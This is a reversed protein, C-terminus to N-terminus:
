PEFLAALRREVHKHHSHVQVQTLPSNDPQSDPWTRKVFLDFYGNTLKDCGFIVFSEGLLLAEVGSLDGSGFDPNVEKQPEDASKFDEEDFDDKMKNPLPRLGPLAYLAGLLLLLVLM